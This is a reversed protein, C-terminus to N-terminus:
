KYPNSCRVENGKIESFCDGERYVNQGNVYTAIIKGTVKKGEFISWNCKTKLMSKNIEYTSKLDVLVLDADFGEKILGKNYIGYVKAPMYSLFKTVQHIDFYGNHMCDLLLPFSTEVGPMGSPASGFPKDKEEITHPAHDSAVFNIVGDQLGKFLAEQHDKHRIPPNIQAMTGWADYIDPAYTLM